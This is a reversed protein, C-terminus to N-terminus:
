LFRSKIERVLGYGAVVALLLVAGYWDLLVAGQSSFWTLGKLTVEAVTIALVALGVILNPAIAAGFGVVAAIVWVVLQGEIPVEEVLSVGFPSSLFEIIEIAGLAGIGLAPVTFVRLINLLVGFLFAVGLLLLMATSLIGSAPDTWLSRISVLILFVSAVSLLSDRLPKLIGFSLLASLAGASAYITPALWWEKSQIFLIDAQYAAYIVLAPGLWGFRDEPSSYSLFGPWSRAPSGAGRLRSIAVLLVAAVVGAVLASSLVREVTEM